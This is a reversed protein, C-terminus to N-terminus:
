KKRWIWPEVVESDKWLGTASVKSQTEAELYLSREQLTIEKLYKRYVWAAGLQIQKLSIDDSNLVVKGVLRSYKDSKNIDVLVQKDLVMSSLMDRSDIGFPQNLEPADINALRIKKFESQTKITLTDGDHVHVVYGSIIEASSHVCCFFFCSLVLLNNLCTM